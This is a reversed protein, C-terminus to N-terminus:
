KKKKRLKHKLHQEKCKKKLLNVEEEMDLRPFIPDGKVVKTGEAIVGFQSLSEWTTLAEDKDIGLQAFINKPAQTLFPQLM